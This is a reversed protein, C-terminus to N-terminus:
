KYIDHDGIIHFRVTKDSIFSFIIRDRHSVSFSYYGNLNGSLKHTKLSKDFPNKEFISIRKWAQKRVEIPLKKFTRYFKPSFEITM